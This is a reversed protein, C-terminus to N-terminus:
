SCLRQLLEPRKWKTCNAQLLKGSSNGPKNLCPRRHLDCVATCMAHLVVRHQRVAHPSNRASCGPACLHGSVVQRDHPQFQVIWRQVKSAAVAAMLTGGRVALRRRHGCDRGDVVGCVRQMAQDAQQQTCQVVRADSRVAYAVRAASLESADAQRPAKAVVEANLENRGLHLVLAQILQSQQAPSSCKIHVKYLDWLQVTYLNAM